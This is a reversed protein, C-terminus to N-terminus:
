HHYFSGSESGSGSGYRQGIYGYGPHGFVHPDPDPNPDPDAVSTPATSFYLTYPETKDNVTFGATASDSKTMYALIGNLTQAPSSLDWLGETVTTSPLRSM